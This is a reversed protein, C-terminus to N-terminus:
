IRHLIEKQEQVKLDLIAKNIAYGIIRGCLSVNEEIDKVNLIMNNFDYQELALLLDNLLKEDSKKTKNNDALIKHFNIDNMANNIFSHAYVVLPVGISIVEIGHNKQSIPTRANDIGGGPVIGANNIQFNTGLRKFNTACLTDIVILKNPAFEKMIGNIVGSAEMGTLGFVSTAFVYVDPMHSFTSHEKLVSTSIVNKITATGLSDASIHRNGLAVVLVKSNKNVTKLYQKLVLALHNILYNIEHVGANMLEDFSILTYKGMEKNLMNAVASNAIEYTEKKLSYKGIYNTGNFSMNQKAIEAKHKIILEYIIDSYNNANTKM